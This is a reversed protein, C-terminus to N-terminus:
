ASQANAGRGGRRGAWGAALLAVGILAGMPAEPVVNGELKLARDAYPGPLSGGLQVQMSLGDGGQGSFWAFGPRHDADEAFVTIWQESGGGVLLPDILDAMFRYVFVPQGALTVTGLLTASADAFALSTSDTVAGPVGAADAAVQLTWRVAAPLVPNNSTVQTDVFAGIWTVRDVSSTQPLTIRDYTVFGTTGADFVSSARGDSVLLPQDLLVAAHGMSPVITTLLLGSLLTSTIQRM